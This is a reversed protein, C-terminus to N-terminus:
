FQSHKQGMSSLRHFLVSHWMISVPNPFKHPFSFLGTLVPWSPTAIYLYPLLLALPGLPVGALGETPRIKRKNLFLCKYGQFECALAWCSPAKLPDEWGSLVKGPRLGRKPNKRAEGRLDSSTISLAKFFIWFLCILIILLSSALVLPAASTERTSILAPPSGLSRLAQVSTHQPGSWVRGGKQIKQM